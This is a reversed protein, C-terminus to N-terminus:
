SERTNSEKGLNVKNWGICKKRKGMLFLDNSLVGRYIGSHTYVGVLSSSLVAASDTFTIEYPFSLGM